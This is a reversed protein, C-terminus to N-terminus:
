VPNKLAALMQNIKDAIIQGEASFGISELFPVADVNRSAQTRLAENLQYTTVEGASGQPRPPGAITLPSWDPFVDPPQTTTTNALYINGNWTVVDAPQYTTGMAWEGHLNFSPRPPGAPAAASSEKLSRLQGRMEAADLPTGEQPLNPNCPM